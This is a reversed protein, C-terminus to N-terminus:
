LTIGEQWCASVFSRYIEQFPDGELARINGAVTALDKRALPGTLAGKWNTKLNHITQEMYPILLKEDLNLQSSFGSFAKQWLLTTFNGSLVCLTHYLAKKGPNMSSFPNPLEPFVDSFSLQHDESIFPISRYTELSYLEHSFTMLPHLSPVNNLVLSGSFHIPNRSMLGPHERLFPEIADDSILLLAARCGKAFEAPDERNEKRSWQRCPIGSLSLYHAFHRAMRGDGILACPLNSNMTGTRLIM